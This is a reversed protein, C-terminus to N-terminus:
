KRSAEDFGPSNFSVNENNALAIRVDTAMALRLCVDFKGDVVTYQCNSIHNSLICCAISIRPYQLRTRPNRDVREVKACDHPAIIKNDESLIYGPPTPRRMVVKRRPTLEPPPQITVRKSLSPSQTCSGSMVFRWVIAQMLKDLCDCDYQIKNNTSQSKLYEGDILVGCQSSSINSPM